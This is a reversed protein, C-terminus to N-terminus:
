KAGVAETSASIENVYWKGSQLALVSVRYTMAIKAIGPSGESPVEWIVTVTIQRMAGGPPVHLSAISDFAVGGGLGTLSVGRPTFRSLAASDGNAYAQFFASLETMLEGQAVPDSGGSPQPPPSVQRPAPLWAPEGAVVVGGASAIVPVGLEMLQGNVMALLTVVAHQRDQVAIGAVQESQLSMQGAGDWGLDPNAAAVGAPLFAALEQERQAQIVPSFNLYVQGFESAYAEALAVPFQEATAGAPSTGGASLAGAPNFVIATVGRYAIVLLAAWLALRLPWLRWRGGGGTWARGPPAGLDPLDAEGGPAGAGALVP